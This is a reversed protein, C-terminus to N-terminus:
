WSSLNRCVLEPLKRHILMFSSFAFLPFLVLPTILAIEPLCQFHLWCVVYIHPCHGIFSLPLQECSQWVQKFPFNFCEFRLSIRNETSIVILISNILFFWFLYCVEWPSFPFADEFSCLWWSKLRSYGQGSTSQKNNLAQSKHSLQKHIQVLPYCNVLKCSACNCMLSAYVTDWRACHVILFCYRERCMYSVTYRVVCTPYLIKGQVICM